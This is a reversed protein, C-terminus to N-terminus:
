QQGRARIAEACKCAGDSEGEVYSSARGKERGSYPKTGKYLNWRDTEIKGCVKACEEREAAAVLSSFDFLTGVFQAIGDDNLNDRADLLGCCLAMEIIQERNMEDGETEDM